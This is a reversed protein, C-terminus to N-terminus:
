SKFILLKKVEEVKSEIVVTLWEELDGFAEELLEKGDTSIMSKALELSKNFAEKQAEKDFKGAKKLEDTFTQNVTIVIDETLGLTHDILKQLKENKIKTKLWNGLKMSLYTVAATIIAGVASIIAANLNELLTNTLFLTM